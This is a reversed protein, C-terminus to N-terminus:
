RGHFFDRRHGSYPVDFRRAPPDAMCVPLLMVAMNSIMRAGSRMSTLALARAAM